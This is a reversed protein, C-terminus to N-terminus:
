NRGENKEGGSEDGIIGVGTATAATTAAITATSSAHAGPAEVTAAITDPAWSRAMGDGTTRATWTVGNRPTGATRDSAIRAVAPATYGVTSGGARGGHSGISVVVVIVVIATIVVCVAIPDTRLIRVLM